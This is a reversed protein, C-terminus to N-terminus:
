EEEGFRNLEYSHSDYEIRATNIELALRPPEDDAHWLLEGNGGDGNWWDEWATTIPDSLDEILQVLRIEQSDGYEDPLSVRATSLVDNQAKEQNALDQYDYPEPMSVVVSIDDIEGSDGSGSFNVRVTGIGLKRLESWVLEFKVAGTLERASQQESM